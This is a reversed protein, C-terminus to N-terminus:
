RMAELNKQFEEADVVSELDPFFLEAFRDYNPRSNPPWFCARRIDATVGAVCGRAREALAEDYGAWVQVGADERAKPLNFYATEVERHAAGKVQRWLAHYLPLQLSRWVRPELGGKANMVEARAYEPPWPIERARALHAEEPNAAKASSKYDFIRWGLEPHQDVRDIKGRLEVGGEELFFPGGLLADFKQEVAFIRWGERRLRAQERAFVGLRNVAAEAQVLVALPQEPGFLERVRVTLREELFMQIAGEDESDRLTEERGFAELADHLLTGFVLADMERRGADFTEMELVNELYFRFPCDLYGALSTVSIKECLRSWKEKRAPPTWRWGVEWGPEARPPEPDRFLYRVREPLDEEACQLLLRSPRVPDGQTNSQLVLVDVRGTGGARQALIKQLQYVDRAMRDDNTRLGIKERLSGPIFPDATITEPVQGENMGALLVQPADDWFLELWGLLPVEGEGWERTLAQVDVQRLLLDLGAIADLEPRMQEARRLDELAEQLREWVMENGAFAEPMRGALRPLWRELAGRWDRGLFEERMRSLGELAKALEPHKEEPDCFRRADAVRDPLHAACVEDLQALVDRLLSEPVLLRAMGPFRLLEGAVRIEDNELFGRWLRLWVLWGHRRMPMGAPNYATGDVRRVAAAALSELEGDLLGISTWEGSSNGKPLLAAMQEALVMPTAVLRVQAAFDEWEIKKRLWFDTQTRGWEDFGARLKEPAAVLPVVPVADMQVLAEPLLPNPDPLGALWVKRWEAPAVPRNAVRQRHDSADVWGHRELLRRYRREVEALDRWRAAEPHGPLGAVAACDPFRVSDSVAARLALLMEALPLAWEWNRQEPLKPLLRALEEEPMERLVTALALLAVARPAVAAPGALLQLCADPTLVQPSFFGAAGTKEAAELLATELRRGAERTPVIVVQGSFDLVGGAKALQETLFEAVVQAIPKKWDLFQTSAPRSM